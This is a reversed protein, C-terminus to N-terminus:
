EGQVQALLWETWQEIGEGTKCSIEIIKAKENIGRVAETFREREFPVYPLLDVKSLVVLDAKSFM